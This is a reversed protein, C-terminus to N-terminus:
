YEKLLIISTLEHKVLNQMQDVTIKVISILHQFKNGFKIDFPIDDLRFTSFSAHVLIREAMVKENFSKIERGLIQM